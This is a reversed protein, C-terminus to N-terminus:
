IYEDVDCLPGWFIQLHVWYAANIEPPTANIEISLILPM